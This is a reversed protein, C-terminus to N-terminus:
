PSSEKKGVTPVPEIRQAILTHGKKFCNYCCGRLKEKQAQLNMHNPCEDSWHSKSCYVYHIQINRVSQNSSAALLGEATPRPQIPHTRSVLCDPVSSTTQVEAGAMEM